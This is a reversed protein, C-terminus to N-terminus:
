NNNIKYGISFDLFRGYGHPRVRVRGKIISTTAIIETIDVSAEVGTDGSKTVDASLEGKATMEQAIVREIEAEIAKAYSPQMKGENTLPVNDLLFNTLTANTLVYAKDIVRRRTIFHYDDEVTCALPDDSFYYGSKGVHSRLTIFGKDHLATVNYQEVATNVIYFQLPKLAGDKVRGVNVHVQNKALRGALVGVAAGKTGAADSRKETDGIMVAVRNYTTEAFGTLSAATGNFNYGEIIFIVPHINDTTYDDAITQAAALTVDFDERIGTLPDATEVATPAYKLIIARIRRNSADLLLKSDEVLQDLTRTKAVGYIWLETGTGAEAYFEKITKHLEYNNVSNIIGLAEADKLSYIVYHQNLAFTSAVAVASAVLGFVGDPNTAVVGLNGNEFQVNVGPLM